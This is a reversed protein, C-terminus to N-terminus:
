YFKLSKSGYPFENGCYPCKVNGCDGYSASPCDGCVTARAYIKSFRGNCKPCAIVESNSKIKRM